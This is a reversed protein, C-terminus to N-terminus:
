VASAASVHLHGGAFNSEEPKVLYRHKVRKSRCKINGQLIYSGGLGGFNLEAIFACTPSNVRARTDLSQVSIESVFHSQAKDEPSLEEKKIKATPTTM